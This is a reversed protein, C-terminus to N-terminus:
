SFNEDPDNSPYPCTRRNREGPGLRGRGFFPNAGPVVFPISGYHSMTYGVFMSDVFVWPRIKM